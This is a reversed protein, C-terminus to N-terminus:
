PFTFNIYDATFMDWEIDCYITVSISTVDTVLPSLFECSNAFFYVIFVVYLFRFYKLSLSVCFVCACSFTLCFHVPSTGNNLNPKPSELVCKGPFCVILETSKKRLGKDYHEWDVVLLIIQGRFASLYSIIIFLYM